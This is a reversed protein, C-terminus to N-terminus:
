RRTDKSKYKKIQRILSDVASDTAEEFTKATEAAFLTQGPVNIKIEATKDKIQSHNEMKLYVDVTTLKEVFTEVKSVKKTIFDQLSSAVTLGHAHTLIDM